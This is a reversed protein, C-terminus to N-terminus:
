GSSTKLILEDTRYDHLMSFEELLPKGFLMSWAGGSPFVEFLGKRKVGGVDVTGRWVGQSAVKAGNAMRLVRGSPELASLRTSVGQFVGSDIAGCMAGDDVVARIRVTEGRPGQLGVWQIFPVSSTRAEKKEVEEGVAYLDLVN